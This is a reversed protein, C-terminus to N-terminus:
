RINKNALLKAEIEVACEYKKVCTGLNGCVIKSYDLLNRKVMTCAGVLCNNGILVEDLVTANIGVFTQEGLKCAGAVLAKAGIFCHAGIDTNTCIHAGIQVIVNERIVTDFDIIVGDAIWCNDGQLTGHIISNPSIINALRFGKSKLQIYVDKRDANLRNWQMAVFLYYDGYVDLDEIVFNKLGLFTKQKYYQKNVAFGIVNFLKHTKVFKCVTKATTSNGIIILNSKM